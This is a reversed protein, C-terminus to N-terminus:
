IDDEYKSGEKRLKEEDFAQKVKSYQDFFRPTNAMMKDIKELIAVDPEEEELTRKYLQKIMKDRQRITEDWTMLAQEAPSLVTQKYIAIHDQYDEWEFKDDKIFNEKLLEDKNPINYLQSEPHCYYHIAWMITSSKNKNKSKDSKYLGDFLDHLRLKDHEEWFNKEEGM